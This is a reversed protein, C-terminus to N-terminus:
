ELRLGQIKLVARQVYPLRTAAVKRKDWFRDGATVTKTTARNSKRPMPQSCARARRPPQPLHLTEAGVGPDAAASWRRV